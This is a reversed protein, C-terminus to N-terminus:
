QRWLVFYDRVHDTLIFAKRIQLVLDGSSSWKMKASRQSGDTNDYQGM